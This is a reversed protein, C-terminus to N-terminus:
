VSGFDLIQKGLLTKKKLFLITKQAFEVIDFMFSMKIPNTKGTNLEHAFNQAPLSHQSEDYCHSLIRVLTRYTASNLQRRRHTPFSLLQKSPKPTEIQTEEM